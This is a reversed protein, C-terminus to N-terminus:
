NIRIFIYVFMLQDFSIKIFLDIMLKLSHKSIISQNVFVEMYGVTRGQYLLAVYVPTLDTPNTLVTFLIKGNILPFSGIEIKNRVKVQSRHQLLFKGSQLAITRISYWYTCNYDTDVKISVVAKM